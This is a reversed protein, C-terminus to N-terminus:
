SVVVPMERLSLVKRWAEPSENYQTPDRDM